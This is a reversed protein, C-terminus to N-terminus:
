LILATSIYAEIFAALLLLPLVVSLYIFGANRISQSVEVARNSRPFLYALGIRIGIAASIFVAPLEFIGHPLFGLIFFSITRGQELILRLVFGMLFGNFMLTLLPIFLLTGSLLILLSSRMNNSFIAVALQFASEKVGFENKINELTPNLINTSQEFFVYGPVIGIAYALMCVEILFLSEKLAKAVPNPRKPPTLWKEEIEIEDWM